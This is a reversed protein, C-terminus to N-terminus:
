ESSSDAEGRSEDSLRLRCESSSTRRSVGKASSPGSVGATVGDAISKNRTGSSSALLQVLISCLHLRACATTRFGTPLGFTTDIGFNTSTRGPWKLRTEVSLKLLLTGTDSRRGSLLFDILDVVDDRADYSRVSGMGVKGIETSDVGSSVGSSVGASSVVSLIAGSGSVGEASSGFCSGLTGSMRAALANSGNGLNASMAAPLKLRLSRSFRENVMEPMGLWLESPRAMEGDDGAFRLSCLNADVMLVALSITRRLLEIDLKRLTM